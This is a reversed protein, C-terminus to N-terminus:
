AWCLTNFRWINKVANQQPTDGQRYGAKKLEAFSGKGCNRYSGGTNGCFCCFFILAIIIIWVINDDFLNCLCNM